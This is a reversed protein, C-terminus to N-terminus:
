ITGGSSRLLQIIKSSAPTDAQPCYARWAAEFQSRLYGRSSKDGLGRRLPWITRSNIGFPRLLQALQPQTLKRPARNDDPGRFEGWQGDDLQILQEVLVASAIRDIECVQFITRIDALLRVGADEDLRDASLAIAAARASEGYGFSDAISLLPRWNDAARNRLSPPMEPESAVQVEAAWDRVAQRVRFFAPDAEDLRRLQASSRQMNIAISRHLLPLPLMGIAAIAMPAFTPFRQSWGSVFRSVGGGRKHGSNFVSRLAHSRLLDLGDAEDV